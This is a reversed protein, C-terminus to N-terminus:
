GLMVQCKVAVCCVVARDRRMLTMQWTCALTLSQSDAGIPLQKMLRSDVIQFCEKAKCAVCNIVKIRSRNM